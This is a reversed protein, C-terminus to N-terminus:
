EIKQPKADENNSMKEKLAEENVEQNVAEVEAQVEEYDFQRKHSHKYCGVLDFLDNDPEEKEEKEKKVKKKSALLMFVAKALHLDVENSEPNKRKNSMKDDHYKSLVEEQQLKQYLNVFNM